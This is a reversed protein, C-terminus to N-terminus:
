AATDGDDDGGEADEYHLIEADLGDADLDTDADPDILADSPVTVVGTTLDVTVDKGFWSELDRELDIPLVTDRSRYELARRVLREAEAVDDPHVQEIRLVRVTADCDGTATDTTIKSCDVVALVLHRKLPDLLLESAIADLGNKTADKPLAAALRTM